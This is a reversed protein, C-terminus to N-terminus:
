AHPLISRGMPAATARIVTNACRGIGMRESSAFMGIKLIYIQRFSFTLIIILFQASMPFYLRDRNLIVAEDLVYPLIVM